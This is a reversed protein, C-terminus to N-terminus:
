CTADLVDINARLKKMKKHTSMLVDNLKRVKLDIFNTWLMQHWKSHQMVWANDPDIHTEIIMGDNLDLAEQTVELDNQSWQLAISWYNFTFWSNTKCNLKGNQFIVTNPKRM